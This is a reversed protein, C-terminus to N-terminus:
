GGTKEMGGKEFDRGMVGQGRDEGRELTLEILVLVVLQLGWRGYNRAPLFDCEGCVCVCVMGICINPRFWILHM